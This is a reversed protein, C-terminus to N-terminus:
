KPFGCFFTRKKIAPGNVGLGGGGELKIDTPDNSRQFFPELKKEKIARGEWGGRSPGILLFVKKAAKRFSM